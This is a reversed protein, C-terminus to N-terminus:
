DDLEAQKKEHRKQICALMQVITTHSLQMENEVERITYGQLRLEILKRESESMCCAFLFDLCDTEDFGDDERALLESLTVPILSGQRRCEDEIVTLDIDSPSQLTAFSQHTENYQTQTRLEDIVAYKVRTSIYGTVNPEIRLGGQLQNVVEVVALLGVGILDDRSNRTWPYNRTVLEVRDKVIRRCCHILDDRATTDGDQLREVLKEIRETARQAPPSLQKM